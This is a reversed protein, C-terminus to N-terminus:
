DRWAARRSAARTDELVERAADQTLPKDFYFGQGFACEMTTLMAARDATEVGEATVDINLAAAMSLIARIIELNGTNQM